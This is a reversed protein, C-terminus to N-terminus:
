SNRKMIPCADAGAECDRCIVATGKCQLSWGGSYGNTYQNGRQQQIDAPDSNRRQGTRRVLEALDPKGVCELGAVAGGQCHCVGAGTRHRRGRYYGARYRFLWVGCGASKGAPGGAPSAALDAFFCAQSGTNKLGANLLITQTAANSGFSSQLEAPQCFPAEVPVTPLSTESPQATMTAAMATGLTYKGAMIATITADNKPYGAIFTEAQETLQYLKTASFGTAQTYEQGNVVTAMATPSASAPGCAAIIFPLILWLWHKM